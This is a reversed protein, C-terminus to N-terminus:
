SRLEAGLKTAAAEIGRRIEAIDADTLNREQSQLRLRYGLARSGVSAQDRYNDFLDLDVLFKGAGQRVAKELKEAPVAEDLRFSVDLDSSPYRSTSKWQAPKPERALFQDLDVELIAVRETVDFAALVEPAVEGVAGLPEKGAQLTASRTAHLGAPVRAQDIRAGGGLAATIERWVAMAAPADHGALVVALAEFEGPLEGDGPPYVHGIEFLRAGTRRHSENFAISRLLGPRLSTRLVSEDSVLPNTIAISQADLGAKALTDPALFPNPMAESIGLGLLVDRLVRRRQQRVTLGGHDSSKPVRSGLRAYGYHRGVEEIVDVEATSDLRWTPLAVTRTDGSGSVTYGIPDLLSPLDDASLDTGLIRNVNSIRVEATRQEAPLHESRADVAGAHVVLDPCTESLLEAFRAVALPMGYPDVGREFRQSAESRLGSRTVTRGIGVLEFWAMELAVTTTADSIESDLGGMIGGVGIPADNADCILLDDTTFTRDEGDLTVLHEGDTALRIRFGGGGLTELDYAHNPQNLELMVYNSVDVVNSIPRMGAATLRRQMWGASEGVVVGSIVTSTFRACRDGDVIEVPTTREDGTVDITPTPPRFEVGMKAALDRAIGVYGWCDPRNRTVDADILVDPRIGLADGYPIGLPLGSPLIRIGDHDEGLGLERASCLMGESDIGLIGRREITMGNPMTTGLTALPVIDDESINDAGCWVHREEGDGADVYVRQVKAADPHSQLRLIRATVVGEVTEGVPTISEVELGLATLEDSVRQVDDPNTPDGFDGYDNLWSLLIKM